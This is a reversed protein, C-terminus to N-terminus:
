TGNVFRVKRPNLQRQPATIQHRLVLIELDKDHDRMALLRLLAFANTVTLYTLRLLV